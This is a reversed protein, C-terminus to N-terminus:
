NNLSHPTVWKSIESCLYFNERSLAINQESKLSTFHILAYLFVLKM